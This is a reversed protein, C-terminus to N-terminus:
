PGLNFPRTLFFRVAEETLLRTPEFQVVPNHFSGTVRLHVVRNALLISAESIVSLPLSSLAPLQLGLIRLGPPLYAVNGARSTVELNLRGQLTVTGEVIMQLLGAELAMRQLRIIGRALRAELRGNQFTSASGGGRVFPMVQRLVPLQTAQGQSLTASITATVDDMAHLEGGDFDIRGSIRGSALSAVEGSSALQRIDLEYFRVNGEVRAGLGWTFHAHGVARGHAVTANMDSITLDGQGRRPSFAVQFSVRWEAVDIGFARGHTLVLTGGGHWGGDIRGRISLTVPGRVQSAVSTWPRLIRAAEVGTLSLSFYGNHKALPILLNGRLSGEGVSGSIDRLEVGRESLHADGLITDALDEGDWRLDMLRFRGSGVPMRDPGDHRFPLDVSLLGRLPGLVNGYGLAQWLQSLRVGEIELRGDPPAAAPRKRDEKDQEEEASGARAPPLKGKLTFRGGLSEGVLSYEAAGGHYDISGVVKQVPIGQVRLRPAALEVQSSLAASKGPASKLEAKVTGSVQGELRVPIAPVAQVLASADVDKVKLDAAGPAGTTLPVTAKGTIEGEYLRADIDSLRLDKATKVWQFSVDQARLGAVRLDTARAKGSATVALPQLTGRLDSDFRFAGGLAVPPRFGPALHNLAALEVKDLGLHASWRYPATLATDAKGTVAGGELKGHLDRLHAEGHDADLHLSADTLTLGYLGLEPSELEASASWAALDSLRDGPARARVKGTLEGAGDGVAPLLAVLRAVPLREIRLDTQLEGVPFLPLRASGQFSGTGDDPGPVRGSLETLQLVGKDYDAHAKVKKLELGAINLRPFNATGNLRYANYDGPTNIPIGLKLQVSARGSVAFPLKLKLGAILGALDVDDLSMDAEVYESPEGPPPKRVYRHLRSLGKSLASATTQTMQHLGRLVLGTGEHFASLVNDDDLGEAPPAGVLAVAWLAAPLATAGAPPRKFHFGGEDAYLALRIPKKLKLFGGLVADTIEGEGSGRTRPKGDAITVHLDAHGSLKGDIEAPVKWERPLAHLVLARADVKFGLETNKPRFDLVSDCALEGEAARGKVNTLTVVKDEVLVKGSTQDTNLNISSVHLRTNKPELEVRYHVGSAAPAGDEPEHYSVTVHVYSDGELQVQRWTKEPVFPVAKLKEMTLRQPPADMRLRVTKAAPDYEGEVDWHGWTPDDMTGKLDLNSQGGRAHLNVGHLVLPPRGDQEITLQGNELGIGPFPLGPRTKITPLRTILHNDANFHLSLQPRDLRVRSPMTDGLLDFVSVDAELDEVSLWPKEGPASGAPYVEVGRLSSKERLGIDAGKVEVNGGLVDALQAAVRRAVHDSSLYLRASVLAVPVLILLTAALYILAKRLRRPKM